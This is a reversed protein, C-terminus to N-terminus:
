RAAEEMYHLSTWAAEFPLQAIQGIRAMEKQMELRGEDTEDEMGALHLVGHIALYALEVELDVGRQAAQRAAMPVSIAIEGGTSEGLFTLVDTPEDLGRFQKNLRQLTADDALLVEVEGTVQRDQCALSLAQRLLEAPADVGPQLLLTASFTPPPEM